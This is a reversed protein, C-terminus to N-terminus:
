PIKFSSAGSLDLAEATAITTGDDTIGSNGLVSAATFKAVSNITGANTACPGWSQNGLLCTAGTATGSGLESTPVKGSVLDAKGALSTDVYGKSAAHLTSTPAGSLTLLGTMVGRKQPLSVKYGDCTSQSATRLTINLM